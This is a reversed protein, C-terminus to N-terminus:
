RHCALWCDLQAKLKRHCGICFGMKFNVPTLRDMSQVDGHCEICDIEARMHPRHHFYVYDPVFYIRIWPVPRKKDYHDREKLIQPHLPIIYRHCYFCKELTPIGANQSRSVFPHCFRCNIKKVGAHVRHSFFIPQRPGISRHPYQFFFFSMMAFLIGALGLWLFNRKRSKEEKENGSRNKRRLLKSNETSKFVKKICKSKPCTLERECKM